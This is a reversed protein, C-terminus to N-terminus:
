AAADLDGERDLVRLLDRRAPVGSTRALIRGQPDLVFLTPVRLVHHREALDLHDAADVYRWRFGPRESAVEGLIRRVTGCPACTPSGLLVALAEAGVPDLGVAALQGRDFAADGAAVERVRGDRRRWWWGTVAALGIVGAVITLRLLVDTM